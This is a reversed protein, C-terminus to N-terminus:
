QKVLQKDSPYEYEPMVTNFETYTQWIPVGLKVSGIQCKSQLWFILHLYLLTYRSSNNLIKGPQLFEKAYGPNTLFTDHPFM